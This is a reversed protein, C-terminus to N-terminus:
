ISKKEYKVTIEKEKKNGAEDVAEIKMKVEGEDVGLLFEFSNDPKQVAMMGNITVKAKENTRGTVNIRKDLNRVTDGDEPSLDEIKPPNKDYTIYFFETKESESGKNDVAKAFLTNKGDNLKINSFTFINDAGSVTRGIEPGNVYLIVTLGARAYGTLQIDSVKVSKHIETFVPPPIKGTPKYGEENRHKSVLGFLYGIKPAFVSFALVTIVVIAAIGIIYMMLKKSLEEESINKKNLESYKM